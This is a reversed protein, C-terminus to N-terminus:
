QATDSSIRSVNDIQIANFHLLQFGVLILLSLTIAITSVQLQGSTGFISYIMPALMAVYLGHVENVGALAALAMSQPISMVGVTIGAMLDPFLLSM